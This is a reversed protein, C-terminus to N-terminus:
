KGSSVHARDRLFTSSSDQYIEPYRWNVQAARVLVLYAYHIIERLAARSNWQPESSILDMDPYGHSNATTTSDEKHNSRIRLRRRRHVSNVRLVVGSTGVLCRMSVVM